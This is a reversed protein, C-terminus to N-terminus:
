LGGIEWWCRCDPREERCRWCPREFWEEVQDWYDMTADHYAVLADVDPLHEGVILAALTLHHRGAPENFSLVM